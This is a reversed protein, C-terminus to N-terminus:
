VDLEEAIERGFLQHPGGHVRVVLVAGRDEVELNGSARQSMVADEPHTRCPTLAAYQYSLSTIYRGCAGELAPQRGLRFDPPVILPMAASRVASSTSAVTGSRRTSAAVLSSASSPGAAM